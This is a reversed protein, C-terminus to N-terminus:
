NEVLIWEAIGLLHGNSCVVGINMRGYEVLIWEAISLWGIDM